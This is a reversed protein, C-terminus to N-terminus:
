HPQSVHHLVAAKLSRAETRELDALAIVGCVKNDAGTIPVRRIAQNMMLHAVQELTADERLWYALATMFTEVRASEVQGGQAVFRTVIDRDTIIGLLKNQQDVVPVEGVNEELMIRAVDQLSQGPSCCHPHRTMIDSAQM